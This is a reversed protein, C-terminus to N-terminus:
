TDLKGLKTFWTALEMKGKWSLLPTSFLSKVGLPMTMLKGKWIGYGDLSPKNGHLNIGLEQFTEYADGFYIAHGGLNFYAGDKQITMARGGINDLKEIIITKKGARGAYVAATLGAIGGGVIAVDYKEMQ